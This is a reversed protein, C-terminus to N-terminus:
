THANPRNIAKQFMRLFLPAHVNIVHPIKRNQTPFLYFHTMFHSFRIQNACQDDFSFRLIKRHVGPFMGLVNNGLITFNQIEQTM